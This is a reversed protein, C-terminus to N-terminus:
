PRLASSQRRELVIEYSTQVSKNESKEDDFSRDDGKKALLVPEAQKDSLPTQEASFAEPHMETSGMLREHSDMVGLDSLGDDDYSTIISM